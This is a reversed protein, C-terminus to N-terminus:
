KRRSFYVGVIIGIAIGIGVALWVWVPIEPKPPETTPEKPKDDTPKPYSFAIGSLETQKDSIKHTGSNSVFLTGDSLVLVDRPAIGVIEPYDEHEIKEILRLSNEDWVLLTGEEQEERELAVNYMDVGYILGNKSYVAWPENVASIGEFELKQSTDIECQSFSRFEDPCAVFVVPFFNTGDGCAPIVKGDETVEVDWPKLCGLEALDIIKIEFTEKHLLILSNTGDNTIAFWEQDPHSNVGWPGGVDTSPIDITQIVQDTQTSMISLTGKEDDNAVKGKGGWNAVVIVEGDSSVDVGWPLHDVPITKTVTYTSTDIVSVTGDFHNTVYVKKGDPTVAVDRPDTGVPIRKIEEFKSPGKTADVVVLENEGADAVYLITEDPSIDMLRFTTDTRTSTIFILPDIVCNESPPGEPARGVTETDPRDKDAGGRTFTSAPNGISVCHNQFGWETGNHIIVTGPIQGDWEVLYLHARWTVDSRSIPFQRAPADKFTFVVTGNPHVVTNTKNDARSLYFPAPTNPDEDVYADREPPCGSGRNPANTCVFQLWYLNTTPTGRYEITVCDPKAGVTVWCNFGPRMPAPDGDAPREPLIMFADYHIVHFNGQVGTGNQFTWTPYERSLVVHEAATAGPSTSISTVTAPNLSTTWEEGGAGRNPTIRTESSHNGNADDQNVGGYASTFGFFLISIGIFSLM